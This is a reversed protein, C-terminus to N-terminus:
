NIRGNKVLILFSFKANPKETIKFFYSQDRENECGSFQNSFTGSGQVVSNEDISGDENKTHFQGSMRSNNSEIKAAAEFCQGKKLKVVFITTGISKADGLMEGEQDGTKLLINVTKAKQPFASFAFLAILLTLFTFKEM